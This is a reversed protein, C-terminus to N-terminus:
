PGGPTARPGNLTCDFADSDQWVYCDMTNVQRGPNARQPTACDLRAEMLAQDGQMSNPRVTCGTAMEFAQAFRVATYAWNPAFETSTRIAQARDGSQRVAFSSKGVIVTTSTVHAFDTTPTNCACPLILLLISLWRM